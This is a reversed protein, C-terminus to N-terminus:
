SWKVLSILKLMAVYHESTKQFFIEQMFNRGSQLIHMLLVLPLECQFQNSAHMEVQDFNTRKLDCEYGDPGRVRIELIEEAEFEQNAQPILEIRHSSHPSQYYLVNPHQEQNAKEFQWGLRSALWAQLYIAQTEPHLFLESPRDNYFIQILDAKVLQELREPSDFIEAIIERWGEIRAWNMDVIQISSASIRKLMDRSFQQLDESTESDFILRTAFHELHPFITQESLPNQGWLLYIPLDPVFLPLIFFYVQKIDQGSAEIFIQDCTLGQESQTTETNIQVRFDNEKSTPNGQIFIIRCPFQTMIMKVIEKFYQTRRSEQTYVILNFLCAKSGDGRTQLKLLQNREDQNKINLFPAKQKTDM